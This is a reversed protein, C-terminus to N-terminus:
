TIGGAKDETLLEGGWLAGWYSPNYRYLAQYWIQIKLFSNAIYLVNQFM